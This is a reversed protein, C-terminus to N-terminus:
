LNLKKIDDFIEQGTICQMEDLVSSLDNADNQITNILKEEDLNKQILKTYGEHM